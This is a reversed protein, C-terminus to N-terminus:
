IKALDSWGALWYSQDRDQEKRRSICSLLVLGLGASVDGDKGVIEGVM